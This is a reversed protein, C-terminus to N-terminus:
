NHKKIQNNEPLEGSFLWRLPLGHWSQGISLYDDMAPLGVKSARPLGFDLRTLSEKAHAV